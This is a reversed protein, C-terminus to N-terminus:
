GHAPAGIVTHQAPDLTEFEASGAFFMGQQPLWLDGLHAQDAVPSPGGLHAGDLVATSATVPWIQKPAARFHQGNPTHGHLRVRGAHLFPGVIPGMAGLVLDNRWAGGPLATGVKSLLGTALSEGLRMTWDLRGGMRVRLEAPGTWTIDISEAVESRSGNGWYRSCGLEPVATSFFTWRGDPDRHWVSRFSPGISAAPTDRLALYHGSAFPQGMVGYLAFREGDGSPLRPDRVLQEIVASPSLATGMDEVTGQVSPM